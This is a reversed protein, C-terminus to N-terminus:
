EGTVGPWFDADAACVDEWRYSRAVFTALDPVHEWGGDRYVFIRDDSGDFRRVLMHSSPNDLHWPQARDLPIGLISEVPVTHLALVTEWPIDHVLPSDPHVWRRYSCGDRQIVRYTQGLSVDRIYVHPYPSCAQSPTPTVTVTATASKAPQRSRSRRPPDSKPPPAPKSTATAPPAPTVTATATPTSTGTVTPTPTHTDSLLLPKVTATATPTSTDAAMATLTATSTATPTGHELAGIGPEVETPCHTHEHSHEPKGPHTHSHDAYTDGHSDVCSGHSDSEKHAAASMVTMEALRSVGLLLVFILALFFITWLITAKVDTM